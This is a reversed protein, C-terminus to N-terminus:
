EAQDLCLCVARLISHVVRALCAQDAWSLFVVVSQHIVRQPLSMVVLLAEVALNCPFVELRVLCPTELPLVYTAPRVLLLLAARLPSM